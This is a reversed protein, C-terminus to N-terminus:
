ALEDDAGVRVSGGKNSKATATKEQLDLGPAPIVKQGRADTIGVVDVVYTWSVMERAWGM